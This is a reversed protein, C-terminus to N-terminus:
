KKIDKFVPAKFYFCSGENVKSEVGYNFDHLDLISKVIFLGLGTGVIFRSHNKQVRYYRDWIYKQQDEPIGKGHDIVQCLVQDGTETIKILVQKDLGAYNVANAIFNYLVQRMKSEDALIVVTGKVELDFHYGNYQEMMKFRNLVSRALKELDLPYKQLHSLESEVKSLDLLDNVLLTLNDAEQIITNVHEKRLEPNDGSIDRIMEGYSKIVTLPTKLDHSVNAILDKRMELTKSLEDTAHNLTDALEDAETYDGKTFEVDFHGDGLKKASKAMRVLPKALHNSMFFSLVLALALSLGSIIILQNKLIDITSEVPELPTTMLLYEIKGNKEGLISSYSLQIEDSGLFSQTFIKSPKTKKDLKAFYQNFYERPLSKPQSFVNNDSKPFTIYRDENVISIDIGKTFATLLVTQKFHKSNYQKTLNYGIKEIERVKMSEYFQNLFVIQLLWLILLLITAFGIFSLWYKFRISKFDIFFKSHDKKQTKHEQTM